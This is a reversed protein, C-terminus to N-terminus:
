PQTESPENPGRLIWVQDIFCLGEVRFGFFRNTLAECQILSREMNAHRWARTRFMGALDACAGFNRGPPEAPPEYPILPYSIIGICCM